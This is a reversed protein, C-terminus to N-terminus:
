SKPAKLPLAGVQVKGGFRASAAPARHIDRQRDDSRPAHRRNGRCVRPDESHWCRPRERDFHAVGDRVQQSLAVRQQYRRFLILWGNRTSLSQRRRIRPFNSFKRGLRKKLKRPDPDLSLEQELEKTKRPSRSQQCWAPDPLMAACIALALVFKM